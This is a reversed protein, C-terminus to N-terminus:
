RVPITVSFYPAEPQPSYVVPPPASYYGPEVYVHQHHERWDERWEYHRGQHEHRDEHRYNDHRYNDPRYDDASAFQPVGALALITVAACILVVQRFEGEGFTRCDKKM